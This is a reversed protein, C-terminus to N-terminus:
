DYTTDNKICSANIIIMTNKKVNMHSHQTPLNIVLSSCHPGMNILLQECDEMESLICDDNDDHRNEDYLFWYSDNIVMTVNEDRHSCDVFWMIIFDKMTSKEECHSVLFHTTFKITTRAVTACRKKRIRLTKM